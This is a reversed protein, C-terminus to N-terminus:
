SSASAAAPLSSARASSASASCRAPRERFSQDVIGRRAEPTAIFGQGFGNTGECVLLKLKELGIGAMRRKMEFANTSKMGRPDPCVVPCEGDVYRVAHEPEPDPRMRIVIADDGLLRKFSGLGAKLPLTREHM